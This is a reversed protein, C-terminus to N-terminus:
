AVSIAECTRQSHSASSAHLNLCSPWCKRLAPSNPATTLPNTVVVHHTGLNRVSSRGGIHHTAAFINFSCDRVASLPHAELKPTPRPALLEESYFRIRNCVAWLSLRPGPSISQYSRLSLFPVHHAPGRQNLIPVPPPCKHISYHVKPNWSIHPIEQTHLLYPSKASMETLLTIFKTWQAPSSFAFSSSCLLDFFRDFHV